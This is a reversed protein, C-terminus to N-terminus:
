KTTPDYGCGQEDIWEEFREKCAEWEADTAPNGRDNTCGLAEGTEANYTLHFHEGDVIFEMEQERYPRKQIPMVWKNLLTVLVESTM